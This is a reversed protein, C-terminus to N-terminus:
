GAKGELARVEVARPTGDVVLEVSRREGDGSRKVLLRHPGVWCQGGQADIRRLLNGALAERLDRLEAIRNDLELLRAVEEARVPVMRGGGLQVVKAM